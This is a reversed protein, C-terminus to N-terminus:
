KGSAPRLSIKNGKADYEDATILFEFRNTASEPPRVDLLFLAKGYLLQARVAAVFNTQGSSSVMVRTSLDVTEKELAGFLDASYLDAGPGGVTLRAKGCDIAIARARPMITAAGGPQRPTGDPIMWVAVGNSRAQPPGLSNQAVISAMTESTEIFQVNFGVQRPPGLVFRCARRLWIWKAPIWREPVRGSKVELPTPPLIVVAPLAAPRDFIVFLFIGGLLVLILVILWKQNRLVM